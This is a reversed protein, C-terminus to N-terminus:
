NSNSRSKFSDAMPLGIVNGAYRELHEASLHAYRLLMEFSAWGGLEQLVNLPTGAQVHWSAWTHRLDHWRFGEIGARKLAAKWAKTNCDKVPEGLYTFVYRDHGGIQRRLIEQAAQNLPITIAKQTKSQDPHIWAIRRVLDVQSWELGTVNSMRLGTALTFAAMDALHPPLELLLQKAEEKALWRVRREPEPLMRIPPVGDLWGWEQWARRLIARVVELMRNVTANTVGTELREQIIQDIRDRDVEQLFRGRLHPNLWRLHAKDDALTAKGESERLWRVVAEEWLRRPKEGLQYVRWLETKLKAEYEM